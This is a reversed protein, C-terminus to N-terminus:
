CGEECKYWKEDCNDTCQGWNANGECNKYCKNMENRCKIKCAFGAPVLERGEQVSGGSAVDDLGDRLRRHAETNLIPSDNVMLDLTTEDVNTRAGADVGANLLAHIAATSNRVHVAAKRRLMSSCRESGSQSIECIRVHRKQHADFAAAQHLPTRGSVNRNELAAGFEILSVIGTADNFINNTAAIHLATRGRNDRAHLNAGAALLTSVTRLIRLKDETSYGGTQIPSSNNVSAHLPTRGNADQADLNAGSSLLTNVSGVQNYDAAWILPTGGFEGQAEVNAGRSILEWMIGKNGQQAALHLPTGKNIEEYLAEYKAGSNLLAKVSELNSKLIAKHLPTRGLDDRHETDAGGAVCRAIDSSNAHAFFSESERTKSWDGCDLTAIDESRTARSGYDNIECLLVDVWGQNSCLLYVRDRPVLVIEDSKGTRGRRPACHHYNHSCERYTVRVRTGDRRDSQIAIWNWHQSSWSDRACTETKWTPVLSGCAENGKPPRWQASVSASVLLLVIVSVVTALNRRINM